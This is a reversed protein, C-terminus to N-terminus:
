LIMWMETSYRLYALTSQTCRASVTGDDGEKWVFVAKDSMNLYSDKLATQWNQETWKVPEILCHQHRVSSVWFCVSCDSTHTWLDACTRGGAPPPESFVAFYMLHTKCTFCTFHTLVSTVRACYNHSALRVHHAKILGVSQLPPPCPARLPQGLSM